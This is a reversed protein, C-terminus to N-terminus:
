PLETYVGPTWSELGSARDNSRGLSVILDGARTGDLASMCNGAPDNWTFDGLFIGSGRRNQHFNIFRYYGMVLVHVCLKIGPHGRPDSKSSMM